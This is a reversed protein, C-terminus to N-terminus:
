TIEPIRLRISVHTWRKTNLKFEDLVKFGTNQTFIIVIDSLDGIKRWTFKDRTNDKLGGTIVAFEENEEVVVSAHSLPFPLCYKSQSWRHKKLDYVECCKLKTCVPGFVTPDNIYTEGGVVYVYDGMKFILHGNRSIKNKSIDKWQFDNQKRNLEGIFAKAQNQQNEGVLIVRNKGASSVECSTLTRPIPTPCFVQHCFSNTEIFIFGKNLCSQIGDSIKPVEENRDQNLKLLSAHPSIYGNSFIILFMDQFECGVVDGEMGGNTAAIHNWKDNEPTYEFLNKGTSAIPAKEGIYGGYHMKNSMSFDSYRHGEWIPLCNANGRKSIISTKNNAPHVVTIIESTMQRDHPYIRRNDSDLQCNTSGATILIHTVSIDILSVDSPM